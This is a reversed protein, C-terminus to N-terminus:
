IRHVFVTNLLAGESRHGEAQIAANHCMSAILPFVHGFEHKKSMFVCIYECFQGLCSVSLSLPDIVKEWLEYSDRVM